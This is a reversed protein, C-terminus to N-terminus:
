IMDSEFMNNIVNIFIFSLACCGYGAIYEIPLFIMAVLTSLVFVGLIFVCAGNCFKSM